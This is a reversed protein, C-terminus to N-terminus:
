EFNIGSKKLAWDGPYLPLYYFMDEEINYVGLKGDKHWFLAVKQKENFSAAMGRISAEDEATFTLARPDVAGTVDLKGDILVNGTFHGSGSVTLTSDPSATSIGVMGSNDVIFNDAGGTRIRVESQGSGGNNYISSSASNTGNRLNIYKGTNIQFHSPIIVSGMTAHSTPYITLNGSAQNGGIIEQNGIIVPYGSESMIYWRDDGATYEGTWMQVIDAVNTTPAVGESVTLIREANTGASAILGFNINGNDQIRIREEDGARISLQDKGAGAGLNRINASADNTPNRLQFNQGSIMTIGDTSDARFIETGDVQFILSTSEYLYVGTASDAGLTFGGTVHLGGFRGLTGSISDAGTVATRQSIDQGYLPFLSLVILLLILKKM